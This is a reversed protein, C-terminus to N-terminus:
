GNFDAKSLQGLTPIERKQRYHALARNIIKDTFATKDREAAKNEGALKAAATKLATIQDYAAPDAARLSAMEEYLHRLPTIAKGIRRKLPQARGAAASLVLADRLAGPTDSLTQRMPHGAEEALQRFLELSARTNGDRFPHTQWIETFHQACKDIFADRDLGKLYNEQQLQDFAYRARNELNHPPFPDRPHPYEVTQNNLLPERKVIGIARPKGAWEYIDGFIHAHLAQLHQYDFNGSLPRQKLQAIRVASIEHELAALDAATSAGVKNKLVRTGPVLYSDTQAM